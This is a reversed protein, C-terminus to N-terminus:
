AILWYPFSLLYKQVKPEALHAFIGNFDIKWRNLKFLLFLNSEGM